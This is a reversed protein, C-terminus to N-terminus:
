YMNLSKPKIESYKKSVNSVKSNIVRSFEVYM